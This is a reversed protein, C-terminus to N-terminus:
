SAAGGRNAIEVLGGKGKLLLAAQPTGVFASRTAFDIM